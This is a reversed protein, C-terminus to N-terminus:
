DFRESRNEESVGVWLSRHAMEFGDAFNNEEQQNGTLANFGEVVWGGSAFGLVAVCVSCPLSVVVFRLLSLGIASGLENRSERVLSGCHFGLGIFGQGGIVQFRAPHDRGNEM